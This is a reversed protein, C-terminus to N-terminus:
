HHRSSGQRRTGSAGACRPQRVVASRWADLIADFRGELLDHYRAALAALSEACLPPAISGRTWTRRRAIDRARLDPPYAAPERQHRIRPRRGPTGAARQRPWGRPSSALWSALGSWCITRGSSPPALGTRQEVAESLAVGAALTLLATAREPALAGPGADLVVSVYLGAGPPSFWAGAGDADPRRRTPLSSRAKAGAARRSRRPSTTRRALPEFYCVQGALAGLPGSTRCDRRRFESRCRSSRPM